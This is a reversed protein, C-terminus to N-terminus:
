EAHYQLRDHGDPTKVRCNKFWRVKSRSRQLHVPWSSTVMAQEYVDTLTLHYCAHYRTPRVEIRSRPCCHNFHVCDFPTGQYNAILTGTGGLEYCHVPVTPPVSCNYVVLHCVCGNLPGKEPVVWTLRCWFPLVLRSKVSTLSLSHRHCWSPWICTQM